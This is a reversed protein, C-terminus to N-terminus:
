GHFARRHLHLSPRASEPGYIVVVDFRYSGRYGRRWRFSRAARILHRRKAADVANEAHQRGQLTRTKVEVFVMEAPSGEWAVLDLEGRLGPAHWQRAYNRAVITYGHGRLCWYALEEGTCGVVRSSPLAKAQTNRSTLWALWRRWLSSPPPVLLENSLYLGQGM